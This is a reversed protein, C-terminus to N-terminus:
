ILFVQHLLHPRIPEPFDLNGSLKARSLLQPEVAPMPALMALVTACSFWAKSLSVKANTAFACQPGDCQKGPCGHDGPDSDSSKTDDDEHSAHGKDHCHHHCKAGTSPAVAETAHAHHGCCGLWLHLLFAGATILSVVSRM